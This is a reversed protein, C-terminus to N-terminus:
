QVVKQDSEDHFYELDVYKAAARGLGGCSVLRCRLYHVYTALVEERVTPLGCLYLHLAHSQVHCAYSVHEYAVVMAVM